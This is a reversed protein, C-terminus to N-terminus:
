DGLTKFEIYSIEEPMILIGATRNVARKFEGNKKVVWTEELYLQQPMPSSSAFSTLGYYGGLVDGNKLTVKVWCEKSGPGQSFFYDWPSGNPHLSIFRSLFKWNRLKLWIMCIVLPSIFVVFFYFFGYFYPCSESLTSNEVFIIAPLCLAYNIASYSVADLLQKTADSTSGSINLAYFKISIFGPIVFALFLVLKDLSWIDM